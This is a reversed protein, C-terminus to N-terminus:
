GCAHAHAGGRHDRRHGRGRGRVALDGHDAGVRDRDSREQPGAVDRRQRADSRGGRFGEGLEADEGDALEGVGRGGGQGAEEAECGRAFEVGAGAADVVAGDLAGRQHAGGGGAVAEGVVFEVRGGM